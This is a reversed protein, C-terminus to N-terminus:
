MCVQQLDFPLLDSRNLGEMVLDVGGRLLKIPPTTIGVLETPCKFTLVKLPKEGTPYVTKIKPLISMSEGSFSPLSSQASDAIQGFSKWPNVPEFQQAAPLYPNPAALTAIHQAPSATSPGVSPRQVQQYALYPNTAPHAVNALYPNASAAAANALYPNAAVPASMAVAPVTTDVATTPASITKSNKAIAKSKAAKTASKSAPSGSKKSTKAKKVTTKSSQSVPESHAVSTTVFPFAAALLCALLSRTRIM